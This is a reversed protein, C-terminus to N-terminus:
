VRGAGQGQGVNDVRVEVNDEITYNSSGKISSLTFLRDKVDIKQSKAQGAGRPNM